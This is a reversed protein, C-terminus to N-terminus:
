VSCPLGMCISVTRTRREATQPAVQQLGHGPGAMHYGLLGCRGLRVQTWAPNHAGIKYKLCVPMVPRALVFAGTRFELLGRGDSCTGEPAMCVMPFGGPKGYSPESVRKQLVETVSGTVVYAVANKKVRLESPQTAAHSTSGSDGNSAGDGQPRKSKKEEHFYVAQYARVVYKLIPVNSVSSKGVGSPALLWMIAPADVYSVHNFVIVSGLDEAKRINERGKVSVKFGLMWLAVVLFEKSFLVWARRKATLPKDVPWGWAACTNIIAVVSCALVAILIRLPVLPLLVVMKFAEYATFPTQLELFPSSRVDYKGSASTM